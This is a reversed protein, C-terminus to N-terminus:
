VAIRPRSRPEFLTTQRAPRFVPRVSPGAPKGDFVSFMAERISWPIKVLETNPVPIGAAELKPFWYSLCNRDQPPEPRDPPVELDKLNM